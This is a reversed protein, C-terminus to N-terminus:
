AGIILSLKETARNMAIAVQEFTVPEFPDAIQRAIDALARGRAILWGRRASYPLGMKADNPNYKSYGEGTWERDRIVMRVRVFTFNDAQSWIDYGGEDHKGVLMKAEKLNM